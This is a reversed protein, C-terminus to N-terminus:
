GRHILLKVEGGEIDATGIRTEFLTLPYSKPEDARATGIMLTALVLVYSTKKM